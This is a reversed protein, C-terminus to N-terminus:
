DQDYTSTRNDLLLDTTTQGISTISQRRSEKSYSSFQVRFIEKGSTANLGILVVDGENTEISKVM